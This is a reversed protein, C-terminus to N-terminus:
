KKAAPVDKRIVDFLGAGIIDLASQMREESINDEITDEPTHYVKEIHYVLPDWSDIGMWIFLAAPIGANHFPVHDSSGFQGPLIDSNGLRAGAAVTSDTVINKSGDVTMAYLNKAQEYKTAVMDPNFVAEINEREPQSLQDVYYRAGLLGREESGFAIFKLEKDTNYGKYIRALELMLGVGSANDNAGPAGVVSDMHATLLVEKNDAKQNKAKKTGIVNVSKLDTYRAATLELRVAGEELQEKLWEGQVYAAGYVPVDYSATLSPNFASGYNGRSGVVSQLIVGAAGAKVANDVQTRYNATTSERTLLVIKGKTETPFDSPSLGGKVYIVDGSVAEASIKGNPAAGMEWATGDEFSVDAIYQDAVPFYQYEVDYGYGKLTRAVYDAAQKEAELGGPRSGIEESLYRVHEIAREAEVRKVIKQDQAANNAASVSGAEAVPIAFPSASFVLAGALAYSLISKKIKAPQSDNKFLFKKM